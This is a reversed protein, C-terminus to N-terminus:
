LFSILAISIAIGSLVGILINYANDKLFIFSTLLFITMTSFLFILILPISITGIILSDLFLKDIFDFIFGNTSIHVTVAVNNSIGSSDTAIITFVYDGNETTQEKPLSILFENLTLIDGIPLSMSNDKLSVYKCFDGKCSLTLKVEKNDNSRFNLTKKRNAGSSMILEYSKTGQETLMSWSSNSSIIIVGGGGGGGGSPPIVPPIYSSTIFTSNTMNYNGVTDNVYLRFVYTADGSVTLSANSSCNLYTNAIELSAGRTVNYYCSSLNIDDAASFNIPIYTVGTYTGSPAYLTLNPNFSDFKSTYSINQSYINSIETSNLARDWFGVEDIYADAYSSTGLAGITIDANGTDFSASGSAVNVGDIYLYRAGAGDDVCAVYHWTDLAASSPAIVDGGQSWCFFKQDGSVRTWGIGFGKNSVVEGGSVLWFQNNNTSIKTWLGVTKALTGLPFRYSTVARQSLTGNFYLANNIKGEVITPTNYTPANYSTNVSNLLNTNNSDMKFYSKLNTNLEPTWAASVM